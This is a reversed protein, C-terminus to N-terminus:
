IYKEINYVIINWILLYKIFIMLYYKRWEEPSLNYTKFYTAIIMISISALVSVLLFRQRMTLNFYEALILSIVNWMGLWIPAIMTYEYYSYTKIQSNQVAYFHPAFVLYSSGIIFQKLYKM